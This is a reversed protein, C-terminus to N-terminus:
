LWDSRCRRGTLAACIRLEVRGSANKVLQSRAPIGSQDGDQLAFNRDNGPPMTIERLPNRLGKRLLGVFNVAGGPGLQVDSGAFRHLRVKRGELFYIKEHVVGTQRNVAEEGALIRVIPIDDDIGTQLSTMEARLGNGGEHHPLPVTMDNM